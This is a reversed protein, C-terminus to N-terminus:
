DLDLTTYISFGGDYLTEAGFAPILVHDIVYNVFHPAQPQHTEGYTSFKMARTETQADESQQQTIYGERVMSILVQKQRSIAADKHYIPNYSTPSQPLGALLSAQALDLQTVAPKCNTRNQDCQPQLNFFSQAAAEVGYNSDGYCVTNLYM